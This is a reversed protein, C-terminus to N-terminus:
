SQHLAPLGSVAALVCVINDDPFARALAGLEDLLADHRALDDGAKADALTALLGWALRLRVAADNAYARALARLEDLLGDRRALDEEAKADSLTNLLGM